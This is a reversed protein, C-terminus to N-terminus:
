LLVYKVAFYKNVRRSEVLSTSYCYKMATGLGFLILFSDRKFNVGSISLPSVVLLFLIVLQMAIAIKKENMMM